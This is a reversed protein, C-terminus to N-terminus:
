ASKLLRSFRQFAAFSPKKRGASTLVGSQWGASRTDDRLMFWLLMDIRPHRRAIQYAQTLYRAQAAWSVGFVRDPPRTQYAYETLWIRKGGYLRTVERVLVDINGLTVATKAAPPTTPTETPKGYYPHHAYADMRTAGAKKMGRLFVLPSLSPRRNRASNNGRPGTVGCAVKENKLLTSHIGTYIANCIRVYDRPSQTVFKKGVRRFQPVLFNPNNPENWALWHRVAPLVREDDREYTGSYRTAAAYAFKELDSARKPVRNGKSGGGAWPPTRYISFVVRIGYQAAYLVTRDYLAWNYAPDDPDSADAPRRRAVGYRGSWYMNVRVMQAGLQDLVPFVRDPNGYLTQAEDFVGMQLFRSASAQGALAAAAICAAALAVLRRYV